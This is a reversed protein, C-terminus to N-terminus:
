APPTARRYIDIVDEDSRMRRERGVFRWAPGPAKATRALLLFDCRTAAAPTVADVRYGGLYELAVVQPTAMAPAAICGSAPVQRAIRQIMSRYSRANDVPPLLLTMAIMWCLSLGGAPLVLSKWLPHRQRGTRWSVLWAWAITAAVAFVLAPLSFRNLYGPSLKAVNAALKAPM